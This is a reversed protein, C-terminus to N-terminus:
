NIQLRIMRLYFTPLCDSGFGTPMALEGGWENM